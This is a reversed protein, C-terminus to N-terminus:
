RPEALWVVRVDDGLDVEDGGVLVAQEDIEGGEALGVGVVDEDGGVFGVAGDFGGDGAGLKM